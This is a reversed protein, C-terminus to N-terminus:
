FHYEVRVMPTSAKAGPTTSYPNGFKNRWYQYELGAWLKNPSGYLSGVDYMLETDLLTEPATGYGKAGIHDLYGSWKVHSAVDIGWDAALVYTTKFTVDGGMPYPSYGNHNSEKYLEVGVEAFGPVNLGVMPGFRLKRVRPGFTTNKASYDVGMAMKVDNIPGWSIKNGSIQDYSWTRRYVAYLEQAGAASCSPSNAGAACAEVDTSDSMLVDLNFFNTGWADGGAYTFGTIRKAIDQSYGPEAFKTGYGVHVYADSWTAAQACTLLASGGALLCAALWPPSFGPRHAKM